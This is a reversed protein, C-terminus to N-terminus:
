QARVPAPRQRAPSNVSIRQLYFRQSNSRFLERGSTDVIAVELDHAGRDMEKFQIQSSETPGSRATGDLYFQFRHGAATNLAPESSVSVSVDGNNIRLTEDAAPSLITIAQYAEVAERDPETLSASGLNSKPAPITSLPPLDVPKTNGTPEDTYIVNGDADVSKYIQAPAVSAWAVLTVAITSINKISFSM